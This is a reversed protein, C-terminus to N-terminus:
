ALRLEPNVERMIGRAEEDSIQMGLKITKGAVEFELREGGKIWFSQNLTDALSTKSLEILHLKSVRQLDFEMITGRNNVERQYYLFGKRIWLKEKGWRKWIFTRIIRVEYYLWFALYVGIFIRVNDNQAMRYNAMVITGCATWALLWLAMGTLKARSASALIVISVLGNDKFISIRESLLKM